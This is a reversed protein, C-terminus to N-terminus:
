DLRRCSLLASSMWETRVEDADHMRRTRGGEAMQVGLSVTGRRHLPRRRPRGADARSRCRSGGAANQATAQAATRASRRRGQRERWQLPHARDPLPRLSGPNRLRLLDTVSVAKGKAEKPGFSRAEGGERESSRSITQKAGAPKRTMAVLGGLTAFKVLGHRDVASVGYM